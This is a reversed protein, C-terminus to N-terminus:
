EAIPTKNDLRIEQNLLHVPPSGDYQIMSSTKGQSSKRYKNSKSNNGQYSMMAKNENSPFDDFQNTRQNMGTKRVSSNTGESSFNRYKAERKELAYKKEIDKIKIKRFIKILVKTLIDEKWLLLEMIRRKDNIGFVRVKSKKDFVEKDWNRRAEVEGKVREVWQMFYVLNKQGENSQAGSGM